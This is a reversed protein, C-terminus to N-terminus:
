TGGAHDHKAPFNEPPSVLDLSSQILFASRNSIPLSIITNNEQNNVFYSPVSVTIDGHTQMATEYTLVGPLLQLQTTVMAGATKSTDDEQLM